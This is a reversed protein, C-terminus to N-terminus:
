FVEISHLKRSLQSTIFILIRIYNLKAEKVAVLCLIEWESRHLIEQSLSLIVLKPRSLLYEYQDNQSM